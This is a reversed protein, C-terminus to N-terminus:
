AARRVVARLERYAAIVRSFTTALRAREAECAQPHRDPHYRLALSRFERRLEEHTFGRDLGAAGARRLEDFAAQAPPTFRHPRRRARIPGVPEGAAPRRGASGSPLSERYGRGAAFVAAAVYPDLCPGGGWLAFRVGPDPATRFPLVRPVEIAASQAVASVEALKESLVRDFSAAM